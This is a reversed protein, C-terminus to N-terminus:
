KEEWNKVVTKLYDITAKRQKFDYDHKPTGVGLSVLLREYEDLTAKYIGYYVMPELGLRVYCNTILNSSYCGYDIGSISFVRHDNGWENEGFIVGSLDVGTFDAGRLDAGRLNAGFLRVGKFCVNRLIAKEFNTDCLFAGTLDVGSLNARKFNRRSLDAGPEIIYGNKIIPINEKKM